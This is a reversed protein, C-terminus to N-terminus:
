SARRGFVTHVAHEAAHGSEWRCFVTRFAQRAETAASGQHDGSSLLRLLENESTAVAGPPAALLDVNAGYAARWAPWDPAFLVIPRDLVAFDVMAPSYDTILLDAALLLETRDASDDAPLLRVREGLAATAREGLDASTLAAEGPLGVRPATLCLVAIDDPSLGLDARVKAVDSATATVLRDNAPTGIELQIFAGQCSREWVETSLLNASLAYDWSDVNALLAATNTGKGAPLLARDLGVAALPTGRHTQLHTMGPRKVFYPPFTSDSVLYKSRALARFYGTSGVIVRPVDAPIRHAFEPRVAFTAKIDPRLERLKRYIAAPSGGFDTLENSEFLAGQPDLPRRLQTAYGARALIGGKWTRLEGVTRGPTGALRRARAKSRKLQLMGVRLAEFRRWDRRRVMDIKSERDLGSRPFGGPPAYRQYHDAIRQFFQYRTARDPMRQVNAITMLLQWLSYSFLEPWVPHTPGPLKAFVKDWQDFVELHRTGASSTIAGTRRQRYYVCHRDLYSVRQAAFLAPLSWPIDEYWGAEFYHEGELLFERRSVRNWAYNLIRMSSIRQDVTFVDPGPSKALDETSTSPVTSGDPWIRQYGFMLVDLPEGAPQATLRQAVATIAGEALWDDSDVFWVYDGTAEALGANRALGLGVNKSLHVARVRPDAAAYEDMIEACHDPSCDDVLVIELDDFGQSLVSDVCERLYGQVKFAPIVVSLLPM